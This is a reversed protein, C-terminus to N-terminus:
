WITFRDGTALDLRLADRVALRLTVECHQEIVVVPLGYRTKVEVTLLLVHPQQVLVLDLRPVRDFLEILDIRVRISNTFCHPPISVSSALRARSSSYCRPRRLVAKVCLGSRRSAPM